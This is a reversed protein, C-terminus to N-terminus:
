YYMGFRPKVLVTQQGEAFPITQTWAASFSNPDAVQLNGNQCSFRTKVKCDLTSSSVSICDVRSFSNGHAVYTVWSGNECVLKGGVSDLTESDGKIVEVKLVIMDGEEWIVNFGSPDIGNLIAKTDTGNSIEYKIQASFVSKSCTSIMLLLAAVSLYFLTKM